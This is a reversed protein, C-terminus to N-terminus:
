NDFVNTLLLERSDGSLALLFPSVQLVRFACKQGQYCGLLTLASWLKVLGRNQVRLIASLIEEEFTLVDVPLAAGIEGHLDRLAAVILHKFQVANLQVSTEDFELRVKMYQYDSLNKYVRREYSEGEESRIM